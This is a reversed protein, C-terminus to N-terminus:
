DHPLHRKLEAPVGAVLSYPQVDNIVVAGSAIVSGSGITVGQNITANAGVHVNDGVLCGGCVVAGTAIHTHSGVTVDHEVVAHTNVLVNEGLTAGANIIAGAMAQLGDGWITGASSIVSSPHMIPVFHYGATKFKNFVEFRRTTQKTSGVANVLVTTAPDFEYVRDDDNFWKYHGLLDGIPQLPDVIGLIRKKILRLVDVVVKAHGGGGILLVPRDDNM